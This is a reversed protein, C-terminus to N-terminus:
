YTKIWMRHDTDAWDYLQDWISDFEDPKGFGDHQVNEAYAEFKLVIDQLECDWLHPPVSRLRIILTNIFHELVLNGGEEWIDSVDLTYKWNAM